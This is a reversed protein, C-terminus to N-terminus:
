EPQILWQPDANIPGDLTKLFAIIQAIEEDLLNLPELESHGGPAQPATNYHNLVEELTAFQGAHMYPGRGAVNRLSPPKFQRELQHSDAVMFRLEACNDPGADSYISLCNFEDALVKQAGAARGSDEPLGAVAPVGTNHFDNNTLLPGNHCNTCNAKGIFLRLGAIEDSTLIQRALNYDNNLIAEVYQDFRSAGPILHREYAAISKGINVYIRTVNEQDEPSMAEWADIVEPSQVSGTLVPLYSVEPMPGFISEYEARYYQDILHAYYTRHSGHEVPSEMPGLAQAWQSDKRGDWFFWPSYATGILTMTRRDTTGVGHALPTGDQFLKDPLHCTACAVQGNSSFRTDFFLKQGFAAARPDDAYRNSPDPPLPPLSGIWLTRLKAVEEESWSMQEFNSCAAILLAMGTFMFLIPLYHKAKM